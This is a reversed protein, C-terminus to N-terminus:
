PENNTAINTAIFAPRWFAKIGALISVHEFTPHLALRVRYEILFMLALLPLSLINVFFSWIVLTSTFFLALSVTCIAAFFVVWAVTVQRTYREMASPLSGHVILAMRTVIAVRKGTLSFAFVGGLAANTGIHQLLYVWHAHASIQALYRLAVAIATVSVLTAFWKVAAASSLRRSGVSLLWALGMLFLPGIALGAAMVPSPYVALVLHCLVSYAGLGLILGFVKFFPTLRM